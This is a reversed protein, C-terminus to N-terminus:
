TQPDRLELLVASTLMRSKTKVGTKSKLCETTKGTQCPELSHRPPRSGRGRRAGRQWGTTVLLLLIPHPASNEQQAVALLWIPIKQASVAGLCRYGEVCAQHPYRLPQAVSAPILPKKDHQFSRERRAAKKQQLQQLSALRRCKKPEKPDRYSHFDLAVPRPQHRPCTSTGEALFAAAETEQISM